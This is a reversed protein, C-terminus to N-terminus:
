GPDGCLLSRGLNSPAEMDPVLVRQFNGDITQVYLLDRATTSVPMAEGIQGDAGYGGFRVMIDLLGDGNMDGFAPSWQSRNAQPGFRHQIGKEFTAEEFSGDSRGMWLADFGISSSYMDLHGDEDLDGIAVGMGNTGPEYAHPHVEFVPTLEGPETRNLLIRSHGHIQSYDLSEVLDIRGDGDMDALTYGNNYAREAPLVRQLEYRGHGLNM